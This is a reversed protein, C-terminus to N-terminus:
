VGRAKLAALANRFRSERERAAMGQSHTLVPALLDVLADIPDEEEVLPDPKPLIFPAFHTNYEDRSPTRKSWLRSYADVAESFREKLERLERIETLIAPLSNRAAVILAANATAEKWSIRRESYDAENWNHQCYALFTGIAGAKGPLCVATAHDGDDMPDFESVWEGPTAAALLRELDDIDFGQTM